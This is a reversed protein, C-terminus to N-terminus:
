FLFIVKVIHVSFTFTIFNSLMQTGLDMTGDGEHRDMRLVRSKLDLGLCQFISLSPTSPTFM